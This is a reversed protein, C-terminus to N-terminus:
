LIMHSRDVHCVVCSDDQEDRSWIIRGHDTKWCYCKCNSTLRVGSLWLVDCCSQFSIIHDNDNNYMLRHVPYIHIYIRSHISYTPPFTVFFPVSSWRFRRWSRAKCMLLGLLQISYVHRITPPDLDVMTTNTCMDGRWSTHIGYWACMCKQIIYRMSMEFVSMELSLM